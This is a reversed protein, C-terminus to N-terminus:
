LGYRSKTANFNQQIEEATLARNYISAQSINGNLYYTTSNGFKGMTRNTFSSTLNGSVLQQGVFIGDIYSKKVTDFFTFGIYHWLTDTLGSGHNSVHRSSTVIGTRIQGNTPVSIELATGGFIIHYGGAPSGNTKFWSFASVSTTYGLNDPLSITDNVGDFVMAGKNDGTYGVGNVLTGNNENGSLDTWATGTGPYSKPNAADLCLVLGDTVIPKINHVLSMEYM